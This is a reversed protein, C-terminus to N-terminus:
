KEALAWVHVPFNPENKLSHFLKYYYRWSYYNGQLCSRNGWSGTRIKAIPFGCEALFHKLGIETWRTCDIPAGHIQVMFPVTILFHGNPLIMEYVNKGARYPWLLHEFVQEAVILDFCEGLKNECIDFSPYHVSTYKKFPLKNWYTGSIELANIEEPNLAKIWEHTVQNMVVRSWLEDQYGCIFRIVSRFKKLIYLM